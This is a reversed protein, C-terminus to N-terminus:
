VNRDNGLSAIYLVKTDADSIAAIRCRYPAAFVYGVNANIRTGETAGIAKFIGLENIYANTSADDGGPRLGVRYRGVSDTTWTMDFTALTASGTIGNWTETTTWASGGDDWYQVSAENAYEEVIAIQLPDNADDDIHLVRAIMTTAARLDRAGGPMGNRGIWTGLPLWIEDDQDDQLMKLRHDQVTTPKDLRPRNTVIQSIDWVGDTRLLSEDSDAVFINDPKDYINSDTRSRLARTAGFFGGFVEERVVEILAADTANLYVVTGREIPVSYAAAQNITLHQLSRPVGYVNPGVAQLM